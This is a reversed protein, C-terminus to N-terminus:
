FIKYFIKLVFALVKDGFNMRRMAASFDVASLRWSAIIRGLDRVLKKQQFFVGVEINWKFSLIDMNQSGIVGEEDDILMIKAHNMHPTLYFRVGLESLRCANLFNIKNLIKIDTDNPIIMEVRVGRRCAGDLLAILRRPPILYPTVIVISRQAKIIKQQYYENLHYNKATNPLNDTIWSKIKKVLALRRYRLIHEKKGGAMEYAFAFSKLLPKIVPGELKIQLDWWHRTEEIINVGGLFAIKEDIILIKRHTRRFWRSFYFFQVGWARLEDVTAGSLSFSGYVDAIIVVEVGARAKDKILGFFDHTAATDSVFTYMEIYISRQALSMARFMGEWAQQSTTYLKYKM